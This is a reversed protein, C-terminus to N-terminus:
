NHLYNSLNIEKNPACTQIHNWSLLSVWNSQINENFGNCKYSWVFSVRCWLILSESFANLCLENGYIGFCIM